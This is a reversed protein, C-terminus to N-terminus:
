QVVWALLYAAILAAPIAFVLVVWVKEKPRPPLGDGGSKPSV